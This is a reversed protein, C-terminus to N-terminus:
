SRRSADSWARWRNVRPSNVISGATAIKRSKAIMRAQNSSSSSYFSSMRLFFRPPIGQFHM